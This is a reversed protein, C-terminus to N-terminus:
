LEGKKIKEVIADFKKKDISKPKHCRSCQMTPIHLQAIDTEDGCTECHDWQEMSPRRIARSIIKAQQTSVKTM